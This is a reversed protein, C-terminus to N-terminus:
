STKKKNADNNIFHEMMSLLILSCDERKEIELM